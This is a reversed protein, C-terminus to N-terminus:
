CRTSGRAPAPVNGNPAHFLGGAPRFNSCAGARKSALAKTGALLNLQITRSDRFCGGRLFAIFVEESILINQLAKVSASRRITIESFEQWGQANVSSTAIAFHMPALIAAAAARRCRCRCFRHSPLNGTRSTKRAGPRGEEIEFSALTACGSDSEVVSEMARLDAVARAQDLEVRVCGRLRSDARKVYPNDPLFRNVVDPPFAQSTIPTGVIASAVIQSGPKDFDRVIDNVLFM